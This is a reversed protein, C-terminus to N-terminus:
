MAADPLYDWFVVLLTHDLDAHIKRATAAGATLPLKIAEDLEVEARGDGLSVLPLDWTLGANDRALTMDLSVDENERVAGVAAVDAFYAEMEADVEFLGATQDFSGLVAIAKNPTINNKVTLSLDTVFAFLPAPNANTDSVISLALRSVDSTTNLADTDVPSVRTGSKPGVTGDRTEHDNAVFSLSFMLKDATAYEFSLEDPVAGILYESQDFADAEDKKGLTRELQYTRRVQLSRLAENKLVRGFYLRITKAAGADDVWDGSTKDLTIETATISRIRAFGNIAATAFQEAAQDGGVFIWEGPILGLSTFVKGSGGTLTGSGWSTQGGVETTIITNGKAGAVKATVVVTDGAGDAATVDPHLVTGTAYHTGPTGTGNIAHVLNVITDAATAGVDVKYAADLAGTEFTYVTTGITVTDGDAPNGTLTLTGTAAGAAGIVLKPYAVGPDANVSVAGSGFQFGVKSIVGDAGTETILGTDTVPISTGTITGSVVKLGNNAIEDFGKAFLLDGAEYVAGGSAPEYDNNTGDVATVSLEGKTRHSAFLFGQMIRQLNSLTVDQTLGGSADVDVTVGKKRQRSSNIPRRAVTKIEAGFSDFENPELEYWIPSGPLVGISEEEAFSTSTVNSDVKVNDVM